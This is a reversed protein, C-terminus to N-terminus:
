FITNCMYIGYNQSVGKHTHHTCRLLSATEQQRNLLILDFNNYNTLKTNSTKLKIKDFILHLSEFTRFRDWREHLIYGDISYLATWHCVVLKHINELAAVVYRYCM